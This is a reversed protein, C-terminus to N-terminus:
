PLQHCYSLFKGTNYDVVGIKVDTHENSLMANLNCQNLLVKSLKGFTEEFHVVGTAFHKFPHVLHEAGFPAKKKGIYIRYPM